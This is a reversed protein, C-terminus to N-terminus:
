TERTGESDDESSEESEDLESEPEASASPANEVMAQAQKVLGGFDYGKKEALKKLRIIEVVEPKSLPIKSPNEKKAPANTNGPLKAPNQVQTLQMMQRMESLGKVGADVITTLPDAEEGSSSDAGFKLGREFLTLLLTPNNMALTHQHSEQMIQITQRFSERERQMSQEHMTQMSVLLTQFFNGQQESQAKFFERDRESRTKSDERIMSAYDASLQTAMKMANDSSEKIRASNKDNEESQKILLKETLGSSSDSPIFTPMNSRNSNEIGNGMFGMAIKVNQQRRLVQHNQNMGEFDYIGDGWRKAVFDLTSTSPIDGKFGDGPPTRKHVRIFSITSRANTDANPLLPIPENNEIIREDLDRNGKKPKPTEEEMDDDEDEMEINRKKLANFAADYRATPYEVAVAGTGAAGSLAATEALEEIVSKKKNAM